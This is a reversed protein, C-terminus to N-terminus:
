LRDVGADGEHMRPTVVDTGRGVGLRVHASEGFGADARAMRAAPRLSQGIRFGGVLLRDLAESFIPVGPGGVAQKGETHRPGPLEAGTRDLRLDIWGFDVVGTLEPQREGPV